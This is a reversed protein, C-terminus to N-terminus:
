QWPSSSLTPSDSSFGSSSYQLGSTTSIVSHEPSYQFASPTSEHTSELSSCSQRNSRFDLNLDLEPVPAACDHRSCEKPGLGQLIPVGKMPPHSMFEAVRSKNEAGINVHLVTASGTLTRTPHFVLKSNTWPLYAVPLSSSAVKRVSDM